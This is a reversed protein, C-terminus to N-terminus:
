SRQSDGRAQRIVPELRCSIEDLRVVTGSDLEILESDRDHLWSGPRRGTAPYLALVDLLSITPESEGDTQQEPSM